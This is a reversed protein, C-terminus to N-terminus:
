KPFLAYHISKSRTEHVKSSWVILEIETGERAEVVRELSSADIDVTELGRVGVLFDFFPTIDTNAAPSGPAVRLVHLARRPPLSSHGATPTSATAGM